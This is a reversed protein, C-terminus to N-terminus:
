AGTAAVGLAAGLLNSLWLTFNTTIVQRAKEDLNAATAQLVLMEKSVDIGAAARAQLTAADMTVRTLLAIRDPDQIGSDSKIRDLLDQLHPSM